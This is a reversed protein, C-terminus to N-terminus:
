WGDSKSNFREGTLSASNSVTLVRAFPSAMRPTFMVTCRSLIGRDKENLSPRCSFQLYGGAGDHADVLGDVYYSEGLRKFGDPDLSARELRKALKPDAPNRDQRRAQELNSIGPTIALEYIFPPAIEPYRKLWDPHSPLVPFLL